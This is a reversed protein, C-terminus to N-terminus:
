DDDDCSCAADLTQEVELSATELWTVASGAGSFDVAVELTNNIPRPILIGTANQYAADAAQVPVSGGTYISQGDPKVDSIADTAADPVIWLVAGAPVEGQVQLTAKVTGAGAATHVTGAMATRVPNNVSRLLALRKGGLRRALMPKDNGYGLPGRALPRRRRRRRPMDDDDDGALRKLRKLKAELRDVEDRV